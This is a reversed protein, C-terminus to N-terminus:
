PEHRHSTGIPNIMNANRRVRRRTGLEFERNVPARGGRAFTARDDAGYRARLVAVDDAGM